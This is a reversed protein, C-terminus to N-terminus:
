PRAPEAPEAPATLTDTIRLHTGPAWDAYAELLRTRASGQDVAIFAVDAPLRSCRKGDAGDRAPCRTATTPGPCTTVEYGDDTLEAWLRTCVAPDPDVVLATPRPASRGPRADGLGLPVRVVDPPLGIDALTDDPLGGGATAADRDRPAPAETDRLAPAEDVLVGLLDSTTAIGVLRGDEVVPLASVGRRRLLAAAAAVTTGATVTLPPASMVDAVQRYRGSVLDSRLQGLADGLQRDRLLLDRDSVMGVVADGHVVPLHRCGHRRLLRRAEMVSTEPTVTVPWRTMVERLDM